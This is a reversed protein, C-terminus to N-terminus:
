NANMAAVLVTNRPCRDDSARSRALLGMTQKMLVGMGLANWSPTKPISFATNAQCQNHDRVCDRYYKVAPVGEGRQLRNRAM